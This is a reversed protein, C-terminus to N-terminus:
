GEYVDGNIYKMKGQGHPKGDLFEGTYRGVDQILQESWGGRIHRRRATKRRRAQTRRKLRHRRTGM